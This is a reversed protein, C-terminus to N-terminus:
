RIIIALGSVFVDAMITATGDDNPVLSLRVGHKRPRVTRIRNMVTQGDSVAVTMVAVAVEEKEGVNDFSVPIEDAIVASESLDAGRAKVAESAKADVVFSTGSAFEVNVGKLADVDAVGISGDEVSLTPIAGDAFRAASGLVLRGAGEKVIERGWTVPSKVTAVKDAAVRIRGTEPFYWGRTMDDFAATEDIAIRCENSVSLADYAFAPLTGGLNKQHKVVLTANSNASPTWASFNRFADGIWWKGFHNDARLVIKGTFASNDGAFEVTGCGYAHTKPNGADFGEPDVYVLVDRAGVIESEVVLRSNRSCGFRAGYGGAADPGSRLVGKLTSTNNVGNMRIRSAATMCLEKFSYTGSQYLLIAAGYGDVVLSEGPFSYPNSLVQLCLNQNLTYYDAGDHFPLGDKLFNKPDCNPNPNEPDYYFPTKDTTSGAFISVVPMFSIGINVSGDQLKESPTLIHPLGAKAGTTVFNVKSFDPIGAAVATSSLKFLPYVTAEVDQWTSFKRHEVIAGVALELKDAISVTTANGYSSTLRLAGGQGIKLGGLSTESGGTLELTSGAEPLSVTGPMSLSATKLNDNGGIALIGHFEPLSTLVSWYGGYPNGSTAEDSHKLVACGSADSEFAAHLKYNWNQDSRHSHRFVVPNEETGKIKVTTDSVSQVGGVSNWNVISGSLLTFNGFPTMAGGGGSHQVTGAVTLSNGVFVDSASKGAFIQKGAPIYYDYDPSVKKYNSWKGSGDLWAGSASWDWDSWDLQVYGAAKTYIADHSPDPDAFVEGLGMVGVSLLMRGVTKKM